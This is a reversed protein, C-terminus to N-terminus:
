SSCRGSSTRAHAAPSSEPMGPSAAQCASSHRRRRSRIGSVPGASRSSRAHARRRSSGAQDVERLADRHEAERPQGGAVELDQARQRGAAVDVDERQMRRRRQPLLDRRHRLRVTAGARPDWRSRQGGVAQERGPAVVDALQLEHEGSGALVDVVVVRDLMAGVRQERAELGADALVAGDLRAVSSAPSRLM